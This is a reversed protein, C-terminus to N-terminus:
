TRQFVGLKNGYRGILKWGPKDQMYETVGQFVGPLSDHGYDDFLAYGGPKVKHVWAQCDALVSAYEHDGDIHVIDIQEDYQESARRSDMSWLDIPWHHKEMQALVHGKARGGYEGSWNDIAVFKWEPHIAAFEAFVSTSRGFEVGIEVIRLSIKEEEKQLLDYVAQCEERNFATEHSSEEVIQYIEDFPKM